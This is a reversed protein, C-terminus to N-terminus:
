FWVSDASFQVSRQEKFYNYKFSGLLHVKKANMIDSMKEGYNWLLVNVGNALTVKLHQGGSLLSYNANAPDFTLSVQPLKFGPGFPAFQQVQNMFDTIEGISIHDDTEVDVQKKKVPTEQTAEKIAEYFRKAETRDKIDVGFAHQHGALKFKDSWLSIANLPSRGSGTLTDNNLVITTCNNQGMLRTAILGAVGNPADTFYIYPELPQVSVKLDNMYQAIMRKKEENLVLLRKICAIQREEDGFFVDFAIDTQQDMRKVANFVPIVSFALYDQDIRGSDPPCLEMFLKFGRLVNKVNEDINPLPNDKIFNLGNLMDTVLKRNERIMMMSDSMTAIGACVRLWSVADKAERTGFDEAYSTLLQWFVHAGCISKNPYPDLTSSPDIRVVANVPMHNTLEVHHDTVIVEIGRSAAYNIADFATIGVDCTIITTVDPFQDIIKIIDNPTIGYGQTPDSHYVDCRLGLARLGSTGVTGAMIGDMDFDPLVVIHANAMKAQYILNKFLGTGWLPPHSPDNLNKLYQDTIMRSDIFQQFLTM